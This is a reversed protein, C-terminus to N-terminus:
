FVENVNLYFNTDGEAYGVDFRLNIRDKVRFRFGTGVSTLLDNTLASVDDAVSGAGGLFWAM